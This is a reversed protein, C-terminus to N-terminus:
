ALSKLIYDIPVTAVGITSDAAGYYIYLIEDRVVAGCPFIVNPVAGVTEYEKSPELLPTASRSIIETPNDKNLLVAGVRYITRDSVGHYLMLWGKKTKIPPAAIGVKEEDWMGFRPWLMEICETIKEKSFDLSKVFDACVSDHVRHIMLYKGNIKEPFIAADKDPVNPPTIPYPKTWNWRKALFDAKSISAAVVRPTIGDYGTYTMHLVGDIEVIRPDECGKIEFVDRPKYVSEASREDIEFGDRSAAYGITSINNEDIARYLLHTKGDLFIAAPNLTGKEEWKVGVRPIIIPNGAFRSVKSGGQHATMTELLNSLPVSATCSYTDSAGYFIVLNKDKIMAGTPFAINYVNGIREYQVEPVMMPGATRGIIKRPNERDLLLAEIGFVPRGSWYNQIHSYVILWGLETLVPPSGLEVQDTPKRRVELKHSDFNKYWEEWFTKSWIDEERSFEVYVIESPPMDTHATLLAAMKGNVKEPFLVMAKGNFPTVLHKEDIKKFDKTKAVAIKIGEARFPYLGLATYFIYYNDGFKTVRPDECGYKEFDYEPVILARRDSFNVGDSSSAHGVVSTQIHTQDMLEPRSMARYVVHLIDGKMAPCWNFAAAAEWPHDPHPSLLPNDENRKIAFM